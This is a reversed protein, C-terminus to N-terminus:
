CKQSSSAWVARLLSAMGSTVANATIQAKSWYTRLHIEWSGGSFISTSYSQCFLKQGKDMYQWPSVGSRHCFFFFSPQYSKRLEEAQQSAPMFDPPLYFFRKRKTSCWTNVMTNSVELLSIDLFKKKQVWPQEFYARIKPALQSLYIHCSM